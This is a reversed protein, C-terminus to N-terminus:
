PPNRTNRLCRNFARRSLGKPYHQWAQNHFNCVNVIYLSECMDTGINKKLYTYFLIEIGSKIM